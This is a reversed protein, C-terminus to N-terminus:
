VGEEERRGRGKEVGEEARGREGLDFECIAM